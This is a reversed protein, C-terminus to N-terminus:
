GAAGMGVPAHVADEAPQLGVHGRRDALIHNVVDHDRRETHHGDDHQGHPGRAEIVRRTRVATLAASATAAPFKVPATEKSSSLLSSIPRRILEKLLITSESLYLIFIMSPMEM